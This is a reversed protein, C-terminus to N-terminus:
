RLVKRMRSDQKEALEITRARAGVDNVILYGRANKRRWVAVYIRAESIPEGRPALYIRGWDGLPGTNPVLTCRHSSLTRVEAQVARKTASVDRYMTVVTWVVAGSDPDSYKIEYGGLRDTTGKSKPITANSETVFGVPMDWSGLVM